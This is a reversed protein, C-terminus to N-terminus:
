LALERSYQLLNKGTLYEKFLKGDWWDTIEEKNPHIVEQRYQRMIHAREPDSWMLVM